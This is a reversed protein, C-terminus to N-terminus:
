CLYPTRSRRRCHPFFVFISTPPFTSFLVSRSRSVSLRFWSRFTRSVSIYCLRHYYMCLRIVFVRLPMLHPHPPAISLHLHRLIPPHPSCVLSLPSFTTLTVPVRAPSGAHPVLFSTPRSETGPGDEERGRAQQDLEHSRQPATARRFFFLSNGRCSSARHLVYEHYPRGHGSAFMERPRRDSRTWNLKVSSTCFSFCYMSAHATLAIIPTPELGHTQEYTRILETAEMGGMFPM